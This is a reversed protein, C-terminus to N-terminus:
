LPVPVVVQMIPEILGEEANFTWKRLLVENELFYGNVSSEELEPSLIADFLSKLSPDERQASVWVQHPVSPLALLGPVVRQSNVLDKDNLKADDTTKKSMARMLACSVFVEPYQQSIDMDGLSAPCTTVVPPSPVDHWVRDGALNNGLIVSVEEVPLSHRVGMVVSGKVLDSQLFLNHLPVSLMQLGIGRILVQNGTDTM